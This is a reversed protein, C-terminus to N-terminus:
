DGGFVILLIAVTWVIFGCVLIALDTDNNM